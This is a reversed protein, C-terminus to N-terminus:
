TRPGIFEPTTPHGERTIGDRRIVTLVTRLLIQSDLALSCEDVYRVDLRFKEDWELGNRGSVQALGTIGPKVDHRRLQVSNYRTMYEMLLPRPGIVSMDGVVVNWLEPLEDCSSARLFRGFATLREDDPLVRGCADRVDTMTRFKLITFPKGKLGPRLQRFLVPSGLTIRVAVALVLLFPLAIVLAAGGVIVDVIRKGVRRYV